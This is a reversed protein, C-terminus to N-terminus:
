ENDILILREQLFFYLFKQTIKCNLAGEVAKQYCKMQIYYNQATKEVNHSNSTKYDIIYIENNKVIILDVVGQVLVCDQIESDILDCLPVRMLFQQERFLRAGQLLPRLNVIAKYIKECNILNFEENSLKTQLFASVEQVSNLEFDILQMAKHYIIGIKTDVPKFKNPKSEALGFNQPQSNHSSEPEDDFRNLGTVSNKLATKTSKEFEYLFDCNQNLINKFNTDIDGFNFSNSKTSKKTSNIQCPYARFKIINDKSLKLDLHKKFKFDELQEKSLVSLILSMNNPSTKLAYPKTNASLKQVDVSGTIFLHNKARTMAVYLLRLNEAFRKDNLAIKIASHSVTEKKVRLDPDYTYMGVGLNSHLLFDGRMEEMNFGHGSDVLFVIPYELGKSHHMTEVGIVSAGVNFEPNIKPSEESSQVSALYECLDANYRKGVFSNLYGLVNRVRNQGGEFAGILNLYNTKECFKVLLEYITKNILDEKGDEILNVAYNIKQLIEDQLNYNLICEYFNDCAPTCARVHSLENENLGIIPSILFSTLSIDDTKNNILCLYNYLTYVEYEDFVTDRAVPAIPLGFDSLEKLLIDLYESRGRALLTIDKYSIDRFDGKEGLKPDFIQKQEDILQMIKNYIVEAESKAYNKEEDILVPANSVRYVETPTIKPKEEKEKEIILVEVQPLSNQAVKFDCGSVMKNDPLYDIGGLSKTMLAGFTWNVFDLIKQDTRYNENLPLATSSTNSKDAFASQKNLFIQPNTNRFGYISQKVDGVLFLDKGKHVKSIIGEQIDNIDQYEDVYIQKYKNKIEEEVQPNQLIEYAFHELDSFDLLNREKKLKLYRESFQNVVMFMADVIIRSSNLNDQIEQLNESLYVHKKLNENLVRTFATKLSSAKTKLEQEEPSYVKASLNKLCFNFVLHHNEAFSNQNNVKSFEAIYEEFINILADSGLFEAEQKLDVFCQAFYEFVECVYNNIVVAFQNQNIEGSYALDIKNKYELVDPQNTLFDYIKYVYNKIKDFGRKDDFTRALLMFQKDKKEALSKFVDNIARGRLVATESEEGVNFSPDLSITYFYKQIITQCFKHLTCIDSQGMLDVQELLYKRENHSLNEDALLALLKNNLKARMESAAANTFTVVLLEDVSVRHNIINDAIREIMVFTKGSGAGASVLIDKDRTQIAMRQNNNYDM